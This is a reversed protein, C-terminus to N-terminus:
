FNKKGKQVSKEGSSWRIRFLIRILIRFLPRYILDSINQDAFALKQLEGGLFILFKPSVSIRKLGV